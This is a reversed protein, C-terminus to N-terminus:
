LGHEVIKRELATVTLGLIAAARGHDGGATELASKIKQREFARVQDGLPASGTPSRKVTAHDLWMTFTKVPDNYNARWDVNSSEGMAQWMREWRSGAMYTSVYETLHERTEEVWKPTVTVSTTDGPEPVRTYSEGPQTGRYQAVLDKLADKSLLKETAFRAALPKLDRTRSDRAEGVQDHQAQAHKMFGQLFAAGGKTSDVDSRITDGAFLTRLPALEEADEIRKDSTASDIIERATEINLSRRGSVIDGVLGSIKSM